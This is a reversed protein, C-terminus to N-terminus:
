KGLAKKAADRLSPIVRAHDQYEQLPKVSEADYASLLREYFGKAAAQDGLGSAAQAAASLGMLHTPSQALMADAVTKAAAYEKGALKLSALHYNGDMDLAGLKEYAAIAQPLAKALTASDGSESASMAVNFLEDAQQRPTLAAPPPMQPPPMAMPPQAPAAPPPPTSAGKSDGTTLMVAAGVAVAVAIGVVLGTNFSAAQARTGCQSCAKMGPELQNDCSRCKTKVLM